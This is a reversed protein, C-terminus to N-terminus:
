KPLQKEKGGCLKKLHKKFLQPNLPKPGFLDLRAQAKVKLGKPGGLFPSDDALVHRLWVHFHQGFSERLAWMADVVDTLLSRPMHGALALLSAHVLVKGAVADLGEPCHSGPACVYGVILAKDTIAEVADNQLPCCLVERLVAKLADMGEAEGAAVAKGGNGAGAGSDKKGSKSGTNGSHWHGFATLLSLVARAVERHQARLGRVAVADVVRLWATRPVCALLAPAHTGCSLLMRLGDEQVRMCATHQTRHRVAWRACAKRTYEYTHNRHRGTQRSRTCINRTYICRKVALEPEHDWCAGSSLFLDLLLALLDPLVRLLPAPAAAASNPAQPHRIHVPLPAGWLRGACAMVASLVAPTNAAHRALAALLECVSVLLPPSAPPPTAASAPSSPSPPELLLDVNPLAAEVVGLVAALM